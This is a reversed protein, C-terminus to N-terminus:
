IAEDPKAEADWHAAIGGTRQSDAARPVAIQVAKGESQCVFEIYVTHQRATLTAKWRMNFEVDMLQVRDEFQWRGGCLRTTCGDNRKSDPARRMQAPWSFGGDLNGDISGAIEEKGPAGVM